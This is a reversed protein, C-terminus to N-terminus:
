IEVYITQENSICVEKNCGRPGNISDFDYEVVRLKKAAKTIKNNIVTDQLEYAITLRNSSKVGEVKINYTASTKNPDIAVVFQVLSDGGQANEFLNFVGNISEISLLRSNVVKIIGKILTISETLILQQANLEAIVTGVNTNSDLAIKISDSANQLATLNANLTDLSTKNLITLRFFPFAKDPGCDRCPECSAFCAM